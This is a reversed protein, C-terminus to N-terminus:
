LGGWLAKDPFRKKCLNIFTRRYKIRTKGPFSATAYTLMADISMENIKPILNRFIEGLDHWEGLTMMSDIYDYINDIDKDTLTNNNM